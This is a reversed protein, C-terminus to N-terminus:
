REKRGARHYMFLQPNTKKEGYIGDYLKNGHIYDDLGWWSFPTGRFSNVAVDRSNRSVTLYSGVIGAEWGEM